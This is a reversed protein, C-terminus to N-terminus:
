RQRYVLAEQTQSLTKRRFRGGSHFRASLPHWHWREKFHM